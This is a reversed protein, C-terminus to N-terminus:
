SKSGWPCARPPVHLVADDRLLYQGVDDDEAAHVRVRVVRSASHPRDLESAIQKQTEARLLSYQECLDGDVTNAVPAYFSRFMIHERGSLPARETRMFMELHQLFDVEERTPIPYMVGISGMITAYTVEIKEREGTLVHTLYLRSM